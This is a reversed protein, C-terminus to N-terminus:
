DPEAPGMRVLLVAILLASSQPCASSFRPLGLETPFPHGGFSFVLVMMEVVCEVDVSVQIGGEGTGDVGLLTTFGLQSYQPVWTPLTHTPNRSAYPKTSLGSSVSTFSLLTPQACHSLGTSDASQSASSPLDSSTLLELSAQDVHHFGTEILTSFCHQLTSCHSHPFYLKDLVYVYRRLHRCTYNPRTRHSVVTIGASQSAM